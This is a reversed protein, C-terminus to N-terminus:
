LLLFHFFLIQEMFTNIHGELLLKELIYTFHTFHSFEAESDPYIQIYRSFIDQIGIYRSYIDRSYM